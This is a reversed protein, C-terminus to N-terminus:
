PEAWDLGDEHTTRPPPEAFDDVSDSRQSVWFGWTHFAIKVLYYGANLGAMIVVSAVTVPGLVEDLNPPPNPA